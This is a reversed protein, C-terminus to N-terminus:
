PTKTNPTAGPLPLRVAANLEEVALEDVALGTKSGAKVGSISVNAIDLHQPSAGDTAMNIGSAKAKGTGTVTPGTAEFRSVTM